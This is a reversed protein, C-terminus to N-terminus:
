SWTVSSFFDITLNGDTEHILQFIMNIGELDSFNVENWDGWYVDQGIISGGRWVVHGYFWVAMVYTGPPKGQFISVLDIEPSNFIYRMVGQQLGVQTMTYGEEPGIDGSPDNDYLFGPTSEYIPDDPQNDPAIMVYTRFDSVTPFDGSGPHTGPRMKYQIQDYMEGSPSTYQARLKVKASEVSSGDQYITLSPNEETIDIENGDKTTLILAPKLSGFDTKVTGEPLAETQTVAYYGVAIAIVVGVAIYMQKEKTLKM